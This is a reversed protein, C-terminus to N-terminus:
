NRKRSKRKRRTKKRRRKRRTKRRKKRKRGRKRTRRGGSKTAHIKKLMNEYQLKRKQKKEKQAETLPIKKKKQAKVLEAEAQQAETLVKKPLFQVKQLIDLEKNRLPRKEETTDTKSIPYCGRPKQDINTGVYEPLDDGEKRENWPTLAWEGLKDTGPVWRCRRTNEGRGCKEQSMDQCENPDQINKKSFYNILAYRNTLDNEHNKVINFLVSLDKTEDKKNKLRYMMGRKKKYFKTINEQGDNIIQKLMDQFADRKGDYRGRDIHERLVECREKTVDLIAKISSM